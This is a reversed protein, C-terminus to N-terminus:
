VSFSGQQLLLQFFTKKIAQKLQDMLHVGHWMNLSTKTVYDNYHRFEALKEEYLGLELSDILELGTPKPKVPKAELEPNEFNPLVQKLFKMPADVDFRLKQYSQGCIVEYFNLLEPNDKKQTSLLAVMENCTSFVYYCHTRECHIVICKDNSVFKYSAEVRDASNGVTTHKFFSFKRHPMTPLKTSAIYIEQFM